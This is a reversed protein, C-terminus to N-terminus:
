SLSHRGNAQLRLLNAKILSLDDFLATRRPPPLGRLYDARLQGALNELKAFIREARPTLHLHYARGDATHNRRAIWGAKELRDAQRSVSIREMQMLEALESQTVGPHRGLNFLFLWQARTLDLHRVRRDFERRALRNVEALLFALHRDNATSRAPPM